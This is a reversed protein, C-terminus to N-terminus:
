TPMQKGSRVTVGINQFDTFFAPWSKSVCGANVITVPGAAKLAMLAGAMAIRHDGHPNVTGTKIAGGTVILEDGQLIINIGLKGLEQQLVIDRRSEKNKLRHIGRIRSTGKASAALVALPPFLDPCHTADFEFPQIKGQRVLMGSESVEVDAGASQLAELVRRDAQLSDVDLGKILLDGAITGAVLLFAGASWDGDVQINAPAATQAGPVVFVSYGEHHIQIGFDGLVKLTLDIYPQSKLNQVELVSDKEAFPLAMLLGSLLQSTQSGDFRIHGGKLPGEVWVPLYGGTSKCRAGLPKMVEEVPGMERKKLTRYGEVVSKRECLAAIPIVLRAALASEGCDLTGGAYNLGGKVFMIQDNVDIRAGMQVAIRLMFKADDCDSPNRITSVGASLMAMTAARIFHSKSAPAFITGSVNSPFVSLHM